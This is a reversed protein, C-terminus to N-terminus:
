HDNEITKQINVLPYNPADSCPAFVELHGDFCLSCIYLSLGNPNLPVVTTGHNKSFCLSVLMVFDCLARKHHMNRQWDNAQSPLLIPVCWKTEGITHTRSMQFMDTKAGWKLAQDTSELQDWIDWSLPCMYGPYGRRGPVEERPQRCRVIETAHPM